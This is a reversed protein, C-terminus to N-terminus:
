LWRPSRRSPARVGAVAADGVDDADVAAHRSLDAPWSSSGLAQVAVVAVVVDPLAAAAFMM